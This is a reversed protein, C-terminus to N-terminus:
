SELLQETQFHAEVIIMRDEHVTKYAFVTSRDGTGIVTGLFLGEKNKRFMTYLSPDLNEIIYFQSVDKGIQCEMTHWLFEGSKSILSLQVLSDYDLEADLSKVAATIDAEESIPSVREVAKRLARLARMTAHSLNVNLFSSVPSKDKREEITQIAVKLAESFLKPNLPEDYLLIGYPKLDSPLKEVQSRECLM